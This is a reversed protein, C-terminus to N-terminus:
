RVILRYFALRMAQNIRANIRGLAMDIRTPALLGSARVRRLFDMYQRSQQNGIAVSWSGRAVRFASVTADSYWADGHALLRLWYDLDIVYGQQGDFGGIRQALSRRFLVAGPEGIVNTGRRVCARRLTAAAIRGTPVGKLGRRALVRGGDDIIERAGFALAVREDCDGALVAVQAALSGPQLLDDQPLLKIYTGRALALARNWNGEPGLNAPNREVRIRPDAYAAVIEATGDRSKDDTVIIEWDVGDQARVSDIAPRIHRAGEYTPILISVIPM